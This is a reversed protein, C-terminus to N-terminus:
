LVSDDSEFLWWRVLQKNNEFGQNFESGVEYYGLSELSIIIEAEDNFRYAKAEVDVDGDADRTLVFDHLHVGDEIIECIKNILEEKEIVNLNHM